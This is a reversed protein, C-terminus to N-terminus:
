VEKLKNILEDIGIEIQEGTKMNKLGYIKNRIETEGVFLVYPYGKENAYQMQKKFSRGILDMDASLGAKRITEVIIFAQNILEPGIYIVFVSPVEGKYKESL